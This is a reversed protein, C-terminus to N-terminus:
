ELGLKNQLMTFIDSYSHNPFAATTTLRWLLRSAVFGLLGTSASFEANPMVLRNTAQIPPPTIAIAEV